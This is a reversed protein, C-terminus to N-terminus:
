SMDLLTAHRILADSINRTKSFIRANEIALSAYNAFVKLLKLDDLNFFNGQNHSLNIIGFIHDRSKLPACLLSQMKMVGPLFRSDSSINNLLEIKGTRLVDGAIGTGVKFEIKEQVKNGFAAIIELEKKEKGLLMVSGNDAKISPKIEELLLKCTEEVDV